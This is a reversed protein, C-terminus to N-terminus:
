EIIRRGIHLVILLAVILAPIAVVQLAVGMISMMIAYAYIGSGRMIENAVGGIITSIILWIIIVFAKEENEAATMDPLQGINWTYERMEHRFNAYKEKDVYITGNIKSGTWNLGISQSVGATQSWTEATPFIHEETYITGTENIQWYFTVNEPVYNTTITIICTQDTQEYLSCTSTVWYNYFQIKESELKIIIKNEGTPEIYERQCVTDYDKHYACIYYFKGSELATEIEGEENTFAGYVLYDEGSITRTIWVNANEIDEAGNWVKLIQSKDASEFVYVDKEIHTWNGTEYEENEYEFRQYQDGFAIYVNGEGMDSSVITINTSNDGESGTEYDITWNVEESFTLNLYAKENYYLGEEYIRKDTLFNNSQYDRISLYEGTETKCTWNACGTGIAICKDNSSSTINFTLNGTSKDCDELTLNVPESDDDNQDRVIWIFSDYDMSNNITYNIEIYSMDVDARGYTDWDGDITKTEDNVSAWGTSNTYSSYDELYIQESYLGYDLAFVGTISFIIGLITGMVLGSLITERRNKITQEAAYRVRERKNM